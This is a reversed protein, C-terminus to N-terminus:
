SEIGMVKRFAQYEETWEGDPGRIVLRGTARVADEPVEEAHACVLTAIHPDRRKAFVYDWREVVTLGHRRPADETRPDQAAMVFCFRGGPAMGRKAAACYDYISGRMEIRCHARQANESVVGTGLPVYPPSGTVLEYTGEIVDPDRLDGHVIRVRDQLGNTEVTKRFLGVSVDQAEIGVLTADPGVHNLTSLGVSGVGCGLDLLRKADPRALSARWATV